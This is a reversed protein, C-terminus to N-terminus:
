KRVIGIFLLLFYIAYLLIVLVISIVVPLIIVAASRTSDLGHVKKIVKYFLYLPYISVALSVIYGVCPILSGIMWIPTLVNIGATINSAYYSQDSYTGKGGLAKALIWHVGTGILFSIPTFIITAVAMIVGILIYSGGMIGGTILGLNTSAMSGIAGFILGIFVGLLAFLLVMCVAPVFSSLFINIIGDVLTGSKQELIKDLKDPWLADIWM